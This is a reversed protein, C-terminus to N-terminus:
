ATESLRPFLRTGNRTTLERWTTGPPQPAADVTALQADVLASPTWCYDSGYLLRETGFAREFAPVQHPFPTGAIDFWLDRIQGPVTPGSADGGAFGTRFLELREAVLPLVGGGHTFIWPIGPHRSLTGSLVLDSVARGTDYLFELMPRPRGLATAAAHPPSTPHVFVPTGRHALETWLPDFAPDGLYRGGANTEVAVGDAGLEDLAYALEALAGDVDPLPLSAFHGFRGPHARRIDAGTDNVHRALTRAAADDGFHVGPSSISLLSTAVGWRDMLDLHQAVDWSPWGPMGDPSGHGAAIAAEVYQPTLFHAHVDILGNM